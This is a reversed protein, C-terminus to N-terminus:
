IINKRLEKECGSIENLKCFKDKISDSSQVGGFKVQNNILFAPYSTIGLENKLQTKDKASVLHKEFDISDEFLGLFENLNSDAKESIDITLFSDLKNEIKERKFYYNAGSATNTMVYSDGKKILARKFDNFNVAESVDSDFIYTPLADISLETIIQKAEETGYDLNQIKVNPFIKKVTSKIRSSDCLECGKDNIVILNTSADQKFQCEAEETDPNSCTGITGEQKCDSDSLCDPMFEEIPEIENTCGRLSFFLIAALILITIGYIWKKSINIEESDSSEQTINTEKEESQSKTELGESIKSKQSEQKEETEEAGIIKTPQPKIEKIEIDEKTEPEQESPTEEKEEPESQSETELEKPAEQEEVPKEEIPSSDEPKESQPKAEVEESKPSEVPTEQELETIKMEIREKGREYEDKSIVDAELSESLFKLEQELRNKQEEDM